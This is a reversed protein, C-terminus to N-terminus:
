DFDVPRGHPWLTKAPAELWERWPLEGRSRRKTVQIYEYRPDQRQNLYVALKAIQIGWGTYYLKSWVVTDTLHLYANLVAYFSWERRDTTTRAGLPLLAQHGPGHLVKILDDIMNFRDPESEATPGLITSGPEHTLPEPKWELAPHLENIVTAQCTLCPHRQAASRLLSAAGALVTPGWIGEDPNPFSWTHGCAHQVTVPDTATHM